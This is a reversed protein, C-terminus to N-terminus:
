SSARSNVIGVAIFIGLGFASCMCALIPHGHAALFPWSVVLATAVGGCFRKALEGNKLYM